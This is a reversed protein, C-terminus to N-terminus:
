TSLGVKPNVHYRVSPRGGSEAPPKTESRIWYIDELWELAKIVDEPDGLGTWQPRYVDRATFTDPLKDRQIKEGLFRTAAEVRSTINYYIRRAHAELYDCWAAARKAAELTVPIDPSSDCLHFILALSPMLSRYKGLHALMIPHEDTPPKIRRELQTRWRNFFKQAPPDFRLINRLGRRDFSVSSGNQSENQDTKDTKDTPLGYSIFREFVRQAQTEADVNPARDINKWTPPPDPYVALQFRQILGDDREGSFTERLYKGLPGPTIGGFVSICLGEATVNGRAIRDFSYTGDGNWAECYFARDAEHGQRDLTALFGSLEDRILLLGNPNAELLEGLREMTADNTIYRVPTPKENGIETLRTRAEAESLGKKSAKDFAEKKIKWAKFEKEYETRALRELQQLHKLTERMMPSKLYGPPGVIIGWLNPIVLWSDYQKPYIAARRGLVSSLVGIVSTAPFDLPAQAREAIDCIWPRLAAPLMKAEFQPVAPQNGPLPEPDPWDTQEEAKPNGAPYRSYAQHVKAVAREVSFPPNCKLAAESVLQIAVERKTNSGRFSCAIRFMQDDREGEPVGDLARLLDFGTAGNTPVQGTPVQTLVARRRAFDALISPCPAVQIEKPSFGIEFQYTGLLHNSPPLMVYGNGARIDVGPLFKSNSVTFEGAPASFWDHWGGSPTLTRVTNVKGGVKEWFAAENAGHRLDNDAIILDSRGCALALNALPYRVWWRKITEPYISADLVGRPALEGIPHKGPSCDPVKDGAQERKSRCAEAGCDCWGCACHGREIWWCPFVYWQRKACKLASALLLHESSPAQGTVAHHIGNSDNM